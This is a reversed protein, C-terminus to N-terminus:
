SPDDQASQEKSAPKAPKSIKLSDQSLVFEELDKRGLTQFDLATKSEQLDKRLALSSDVFSDLGEVNSEANKLALGVSNAFIGPFSKLSDLSDEFIMAQKKLHAPLNRTYSQHRAKIGVDSGYGQDKAAHPNYLLIQDWLAGATVIADALTKDAAELLLHPPSGAPPKSSELLREAQDIKSGFISLRRAYHPGVERTTRKFAGRYLNRFAPVLIGFILPPGIFCVAVMSILVPLTVPTLASSSLTIGFLLTILMLVAGGNFKGDAHVWDPAQRVYSLRFDKGRLSKWLKSLNM